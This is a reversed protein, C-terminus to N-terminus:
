PTDYNVNEDLIKIKFLVPWRKGTILVYDNEADYAIGNLVNESLIGKKYNKVLDKFNIRKSVIGSTPDIVIIEDKLWINAYIEGKIYELENIKKVEGENDFVKLTKIIELSTPDLYYLNSSGDSVILHIDNHTAGWGESFFVKQTLLKLDRSNFIFLKREKYTLLFIKDEFKTIGEGFIEKPLKHELYLRGTKYNYKKLVSTGYGGTSEIITDGEVILGQTFDNTDHKYEGLVKFEVEKPKLEPLV